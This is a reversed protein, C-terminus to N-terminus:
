YILRFAGGNIVAVGNSDLQYNPTSFLFDASGDGNLDAMSCSNGYFSGILGDQSHPQLMVPAYFNRTVTPASGGSPAPGTKVTASTLDATVSPNQQGVFLGPLTNMDSTSPRPARHGFLVVGFGTASSPMNPDSRRSSGIMLDSTGDPSLNVDGKNLGNVGTAIASKAPRASLLAAGTLDGPRTGYVTIVQPALADTISPAPDRVATQTTNDLTSKLNFDPFTCVGKFGSDIASFTWPVQAQSLSLGKSWIWSGNHAPCIPGYYVYVQGSSSIVVVDDYTDGNFDGVSMGIGFNRDKTSTGELSPLEAPVNTTTPSLSFVFDQEDHPSPITSLDKLNGLRGQDGVMRDASPAAVGYGKVGYYIFTAGARLDKMGNTSNAYTQSAVTFGPAGVVLDDIGDGNVDAAILSAGFYANRIGMFSGFARKGNEDRWIEWFQPNRILTGTSGCDYEGEALPSSPDCPFKTKDFLFYGPAGTHSNSATPTTLSGYVNKLNSAGDSCSKYGDTCAEQSMNNSSDSFSSEPVQYGFESGYLVIVYGSNPITTGRKYAAGTTEPPTGLYDCGQVVGQESEGCVWKGGTVNQKPNAGPLAPSDGDLTRAPSTGFPVGLAIDEFGDGNFDGHTLSVLSRPGFGNAAAYSPAGGGTLYGKTEFSWSTVRTFLQENAVSIQFIGRPPGPVALTDDPPLSKVVWQPEKVASLGTAPQNHAIVGSQSGFYLHVNQSAFADVILFDDFGDHNVDGAPSARLSWTGSLVSSFRPLYQPLLYQNPDDALTVPVPQLAGECDTLSIPSGDTRRIDNLHEKCFGYTVPGFKSGFYILADYSVDSNLFTKVPVLIDDAGDGNIDGIVTSFEINLDNPKNAVDSLIAKSSFGQGPSTSFLSIAGKGNNFFPSGTVIDYRVSCALADTAPNYNFTWGSAAVSSGFGGATSSMPPASSAWFGKLNSSHTYQTVLNTAKTGFGAILDPIGDEISVRAVSLSQAAGLSTSVRQPTCGNLSSRSLPGYGLSLGGTGDDSDGIYKPFVSGTSYYPYVETLKASVTSNAATGEQSIILDKQLTKCVKSAAVAASQGPYTATAPTEVNTGAALSPNSASLFTSTASFDAAYNGFFTYISSSSSVVVDAYGDQNLDTGMPRQKVSQVAAPKTSLSQKVPERVPTFTFNRTGLVDDVGVKPFPRGWLRTGRIREHIRLPLNSQYVYSSSDNSDQFLGSVDTITDASEINYLAMSNEEPAGLIAVNSGFNNVVTSAAGLEPHIVTFNNRGAMCSVHHFVGYGSDTSDKYTNGRNGCNYFSERPSVKPDNLIKMKAPDPNSEAFIQRGGPGRSRVDLAFRSFVSDIAGAQGLIGGTDTTFLDQDLRASLSYTKMAHRGLYLFAIGTSANAIAKINMSNRFVFDTATASGPNPDWAYNLPATALPNRIGLDNDSGNYATWKSTTGYVNRVLPDTDLGTPNWAAPITIQGAVNLATQDSYSFGPAGIVLDSGSALIVPYSVTGQADPDSPLAGSPVVPVPLQVNVDGGGSLSAGFRMYNQPLPPYIKAYPSILRGDPGPNTSDIAFYPNKGMDVPTIGNKGGWFLYVCGVQQPPPTPLRTYTYGNNTVTLKENNIALGDWNCGPFGIAVDGYGDANVDGAYTLASAFNDASTDNVAAFQGGHTSPDIKLNNQDSDKTAQLKVPNCVTGSCSPGNLTLNGNYRDTSVLGGEHGFFVVAFGAGAKTGPAGVILDDCSYYQLKKNHEIARYDRNINGVSLTAGFRSYQDLDNFSIYKSYAYSINAGDMKYNYLVRVAGSQPATNAYGDANISIDPLGIALDPEGNCDFDGIATSRGLYTPSDSSAKPPAAEYRDSAYKLKPVPNHGPLGDYFVVLQSSTNTSVDKCQYKIELNQIEHDKIGSNPAPSFSISGNGDLRESIATESHSVPDYQFAQASISTPCQSGPQNTDCRLTLRANAKSSGMGLYTLTCPPETFKPDILIQAATASSAFDVSRSGDPYRAVVKFDYLHGSLLATTDCDRSGPGIVVQNSMTQCLLNGSYGSSATGPLTWISHDGPYAAEKYYVEFTTMTGTPYSWSLKPTRYPPMGDLSGTLEGTFKPLSDASLNIGLGSVNGSSDVCGVSFTYHTAPSIKPASLKVPPLTAEEIPAQSNKTLDFIRYQICSSRIQWYIEIKEPGLVRVSSIGTFSGLLSGGDLSGSCGSVAVAFLLWKLSTNKLERFFM